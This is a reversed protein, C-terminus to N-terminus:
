KVHLLSSLTDAEREFAIFDSEALTKMAVLTSGWSGLFVQGFNGEGLVSKIIINELSPSSKAMARLVSRTLFPLIDGFDSPNDESFKLNLRSSGRKWWVFLFATGLSSVIVIPIIIIIITTSELGIALNSGTGEISRDVNGSSSGEEGSTSFFTNFWCYNLGRSPELIWSEPCDGQFWGSVILNSSKLSFSLVANEVAVIGNGNGNGVGFTEITKLESTETTIPDYIYCQDQFWFFIFQGLVAAPVIPHYILPLIQDTQWTGSTYNYIDVYDSPRKRGQGGAFFAMEGISVAATYARAESLYGVRTTM